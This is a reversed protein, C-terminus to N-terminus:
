DPKPRAYALCRKCKIETFIKISISVRVFVDLTDESIGTIQLVELCKDMRKSPRVPHPKPNNLLDVRSLFQLDKTSSALDVPRVSYGDLIDQM